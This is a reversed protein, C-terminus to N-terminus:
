FNYYQVSDYMLSMLSRFPVDGDGDTCAIGTPIHATQEKRGKREQRSTWIQFTNVYKVVHLSCCWLNSNKLLTKIIYYAHIIDHGIRPHSSSDLTSPSDSTQLMLWRHRARNNNLLVTFKDFVNILHAIIKLQYCCLWQHATM